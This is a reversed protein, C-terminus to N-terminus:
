PLDSRPSRIKNYKEKVRTAKAFFESPFGELFALTWKTEVQSYYQILIFIVWEISVAMLRKM